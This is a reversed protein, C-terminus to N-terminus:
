NSDRAVPELWSVLMLPESRGSPTRRWGLPRVLAGPPIEEPLSPPTLAGDDVAVVGHKTLLLDGEPSWRVMWTGEPLRSLLEGGASYVGVPTVALHRGDPSWIAAWAGEAQISRCKGTAADCVKV